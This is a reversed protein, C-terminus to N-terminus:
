KVIEVGKESRKIIYIKKNELYQFSHDRRSRSAEISFENFLKADNDSLHNIFMKDHITLLKGFHYMNEYGKFFMDSPKSIFKNRYKKILESGVAEKRSFYFPSSVIVNLGNGYEIKDFDKMAEWTPMGIITSNYTAKIGAVTKVLKLGFVENLSSCILLNDQTSDLYPQLENNSFTDSLEVTKIVLPVNANVNIETFYSQLISEASGKKKCLVINQSAHHKQIYKYLQEFHTYLNSNLLIFYPNNLVGGDNPFTSSILPIKNTLAFDALPKIETKNNFAAIILNAKTLEGSTILSSLSQKANKSDYISVELQIGEEQLSDIGFMIGNYFDLGPLMYRPLSNMGTKLDTGNFASDLYVPAIVVVKLTKAPQAKANTGIFLLGIILCFIIRKM